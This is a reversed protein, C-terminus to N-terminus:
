GERAFFIASNSMPWGTGTWSEWNREFLTVHIRTHKQISGLGGDDVELFVQGESKCEQLM